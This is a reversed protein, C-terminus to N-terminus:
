KSRKWNNKLHKDLWLLSLDQELLSNQLDSLVVLKDHNCAYMIRIDPFYYKGGILSYEENLNCVRMNQLNGRLPMKTVETLLLDAKLINRWNYDVFDHKGELYVFDEFKLRLLEDINTIKEGYCSIWNIKELKKM